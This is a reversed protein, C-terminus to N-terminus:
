RRTYILVWVKTFIFMTVLCVSYHVLPDFKHLLVDPYRNWYDLRADLCTCEYTLGVDTIPALIFNIYRM